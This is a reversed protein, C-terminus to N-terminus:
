ARLLKVTVLILAKYLDFKAHSSYKEIAGKFLKSWSGTGTKKRASIQAM